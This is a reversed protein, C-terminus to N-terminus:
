LDFVLGMQEDYLREYEENLLYYGSEVQKEGLDGKVRFFLPEAHQKVWDKRYCTVTIPSAKRLIAANLGNKSVETKIEDFLDKKPQWPVILRVGEDVILQYQEAVAKYNKAQVAQTLVTRDGAMQFLADYYRDIVEPDDIDFTLNESKAWLNQVITAATEYFEDPYGDEKGLEFIVLRGDEYRGNRNIRGSAQSLAELPALARYMMAFDFDVGAEICQTAVVKCPKPPNSDLREKVEAVIALRHAPCLDKTLLFLREGKECKQQLAKFLKRAHRRLNVITCVNAKLAMEDAIQELSMAKISRDENKSLRWEIHIRRITRMKDYLVQSDPIIETPQWKTDPLANFKPQTATSFVISCNYTSCLANVAKVTVSALDAPLSQSEDFLVVSNAINHLKRCTGPRNSFLSEFFRVSTTIIVPASWRSAIERVDDPLSKQSHDVLIEPFIRAYEKESQEALTLFPLVLIIRNLHNKQCHRLAFHLMALTKAAGTPATLTFLGPPNESAAGCMNFVYNRIKNVQPNATSEKKLKEHREYLAHLAAKVNLSGGISKLLYDPDTHSASVSYDADVLCSYIMRTSLMNEVQNTVARDAFKSLRYTPFDNQFAVLAKQLEERGCLSPIKGNPSCTMSLNKAAEKFYPELEVLSLLGDHHGQISEIIPEYAAWVASTNDYKWLQKVMYLLTASSFAHDVGRDRGMLVGQFRDSNKGVDHFRGSLEAEKPYGIEAGFTHALDAVKSLHEKNTIWKQGSKAYYTEM